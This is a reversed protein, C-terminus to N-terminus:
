DEENLRRMPGALFRGGEAVRTSAGPLLVSLAAASAPSTSRHAVYWAETSSIVATVARSTPVTM